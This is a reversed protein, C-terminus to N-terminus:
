KISCCRRKISKSKKIQTSKNNKKEIKNFKCYCEYIMHSMVEVINMNLKCSVEFYKIKYKNAENEADIKSICRKDLDVKNGILFITTESENSCSNIENMWTAVNDFTEKNNIDFLLFIGDANQYYKKPLSKFRDQGATDWLTIKCEEDGVKVAKIQKDIGITSLFNDQFDNKLWRRYFCTKGVTTDGVVIISLSKLEKTYQFAESINESYNNIPLELNAQFESHNILQNIKEILENYNNGEKISIQFNDCFFIKNEDYFNTLLENNIKRENELDIKNQVLINQLYPFNNVFIQIVKLLKKIMEFSKQNTIDVIYLACQCDFFFSEISDKNDM